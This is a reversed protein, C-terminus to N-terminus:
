GNAQSPAPLLQKPSVHDKALGEGDEASMFTTPLLPCITQQLDEFVVGMARSQPRYNRRAYPAATGVVIVGRGRGLSLTPARNGTRSQRTVTPLTACTAPYRCRSGIPMGDGAGSCQRPVRVAAPLSRNSTRSTMAR